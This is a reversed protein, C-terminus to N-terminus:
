NESRQERWEHIFEMADSDFGYEEPNLGLEECLRFFHKSQPTIGRNEAGAVQAQNMECMVSLELQTLGLEQRAAKVARGFRRAAEDRKLPPM